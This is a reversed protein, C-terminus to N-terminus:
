LLYKNIYEDYTLVIMEKAFCISGSINCNLCDWGTYFKKESSNITQEESTEGQGRGLM